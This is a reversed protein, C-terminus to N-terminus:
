PGFKLVPTSTGARGTTRSSGGSDGPGDNGSRLVDVAERFAVEQLPEPVGAKQVAEWAKRLIEDVEMDM